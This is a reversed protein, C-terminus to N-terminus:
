LGCQQYGVRRVTSFSNLFYQQTNITPTGVSMNSIPTQMMVFYSTPCAVTVSLGIRTEDFVLQFYFHQNEVSAQSAGYFGGNFSDLTLLAEGLTFGPPFVLISQIRDHNIMVETTQLTDKSRWTLRNCFNSPPDFCSSISPESGYDVNLREQANTALSTGPEVGQWCSIKCGNLDDRLPDHYPQARLAGIVGAFLLTILLAVRLLFTM